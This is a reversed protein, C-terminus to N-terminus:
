QARLEAIYKVLEAASPTGTCKSALWSAASAVDRFNRLRIQGQLGILRLSMSQIVSAAFGQDLTIWVVAQTTSQIRTMLRMAADRINGDPIPFGPELVM